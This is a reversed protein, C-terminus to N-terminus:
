PSAHSQFSPRPFKGLIRKRLIRADSIEKLFYAYKRAGTVGFTATTEGVAVVLVDYPVRFQEGTGVTDRQGSTCVVERSAVDVDNAFAEYYEVYPNAARIPEVISRFEITGVATASLLPTFFFFNRPSIVTISSVTTTDIVKVLSHAAWGTGLIVVRPGTPLADRRFLRAYHISADIVTDAFRELVVQVNSLQPTPSPSPPPSPPKPIVPKTPQKPQPACAHPPRRSTTRPPQNRRIFLATSPIFPM